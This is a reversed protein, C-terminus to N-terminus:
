PQLDICTAPHDCKAQPHISAYPGFGTGDRRSNSECPPRASPWPSCPPAKGTHRAAVFAGVGPILHIGIWRVRRPSPCLVETIGTARRADETRILRPLSEGGGQALQGGGQALQGRGAGTALPLRGCIRNGQYMNHGGNVHVVQGTVYGGADSALFLCAGAIEDVHGYRGLPVEAIIRERPQHVYQSWDRVTDIPGPSVTNTEHSLMALLLRM